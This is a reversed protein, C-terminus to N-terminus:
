FQARGARNCYLHMFFVMGSSLHRAVAEHRMRVKSTLALGPARVSTDWQQRLEQCEAQLFHRGLPIREVRVEALRLHSNGTKDLM